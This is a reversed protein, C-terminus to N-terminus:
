FCSSEASVHDLDKPDAVVDVWVGEEGSHGRDVLVGGPVYIFPVDGSGGEVDGGFRRDSVDSTVGESHSSHAFDTTM